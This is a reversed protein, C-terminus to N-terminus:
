QQEQTADNLLGLSLINGRNNIELLLRQAGKARDVPRIILLNGSYEVMGRANRPALRIDTISADLPDAPDVEGFFRGTLKEYQGGAGFSIGDFTPSQVTSIEIRTIRAHAPTAVNALFMFGVGLAARPLREWATRVWIM